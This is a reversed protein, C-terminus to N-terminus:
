GLYQTYILDGIDLDGPDDLVKLVLLAKDFTWPVMELVQSREEENQFSFLFVDNAM